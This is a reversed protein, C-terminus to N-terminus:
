NAPPRPGQGNRKGKWGGEGRPGGGAGAQRGKGANKDRTSQDVIEVKAGDRLKDAGDTVVRNGPELRGDVAVLNGDVAGPTVMVTGVQSEGDVVYVYAGRAGQLVAAGPVVLADASVGLLLRTNVFQNPFLGGDKNAFEAKMKITGTATDILNDTTILRGSALRAKQERDWGEVTISEGSGIRRNIAPLYSEPVAFVVTMPQLQAIVAIGNADAAHVQNGPDVQRLGIRGDVPATIRSYTLQLKASDVQARDTAVTGQAQRVLAEQTDLQQKAISDKAWLERYRALDAQANELQATDRALQGTAQGLQVQYPRPDIVALLQGQKVIEGERFHLKMLEGDVRARVTVLNRPVATGVASVWIPVDARKVEAVSVPQVRNANGGRSGRGEGGAAPAEGTQRANWLYAGGVMGAISVASALIAAGKHRVFFSRM